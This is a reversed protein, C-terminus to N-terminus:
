LFFFFSSLFKGHAPFTQNLLVSGHSDNTQLLQNTHWLLPKLYGKPSELKPGLFFIFVSGSFWFDRSLTTDCFAKCIPLENGHWIQTTPKRLPTQRVEKNKAARVESPVKSNPPMENEEMERPFEGKFEELEPNKLSYLNVRNTRWSSNTEPVTM